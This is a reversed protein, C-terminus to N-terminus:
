RRRRLLLGGLVLLGLSVGAPEPIYTFTLDDLGYAAITSGDSPTAEVVIRDVSPLSGMDLWQPTTTPPELWGTTGVPLDHLYGHVRIATAWVSSPTGQVAFYGGALDVPVPFGIGMLSAGSSNVINTPASYPHNSDGASAASWYGLDGGVGANGVEWALGAYGFATLNYRSPLDDFKLVTPSADAQASTSLPFLVALTMLWWLLWEIRCSQIWRYM